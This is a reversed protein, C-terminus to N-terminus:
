RFMLVNLHEALINNFVFSGTLMSFNNVPLKTKASLPLLAQVWLLKKKEELLRAYGTRLSRVAPLKRIGPSDSTRKTILRFNPNIMRYIGKTDKKDTQFLDHGISLRMLNSIYISLRM